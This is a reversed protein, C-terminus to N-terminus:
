RAARSPGPARPAAASAAAGRAPRRLQDDDVRARAVVAGIARAPVAGLEDLERVVGAEAGGVVGADRAGAVVDGDQEVGVGLQDVVRQMLERRLRSDMGTGQVGGPQELWVAGDLAGGVRQGARDARQQGREDM